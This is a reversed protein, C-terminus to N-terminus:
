LAAGFLAWRRRTLAAISRLQDPNDRGVWATTPGVVADGADPLKMWGSRMLLEVDCEASMTLSSSFALRRFFAGRLM